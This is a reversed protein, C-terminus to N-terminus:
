RAAKAVGHKELLAELQAREEAGLTEHEAAWRAYAVVLPHGAMNSDLSWRAGQFILGQRLREKDEDTKQSSAFAAVADDFPALALATILQRVPAYRGTALFEGWLLDLQAPSTLERYPDPLSVQALNQAIHERVQEDGVPLTALRADQGLLHLMLTIKTSQDPRTPDFRAVLHDVLWPSAQFLSRFFGLVAFNPSQGDRNQLDAYELWARVAQAPKPARYYEWMWQDCAAHDAPVEGYTWPVLELQAESRATRGSGADHAEAVITTTGPPDKDGFAFEPVARSLVLQGQSPLADDWAPVDSALVQTKRDADVTSLDLTVKGRGGGADGIGELVVLLLVNEGPNVQHVLALAPSSDHAARYWVDLGKDARVISLTAKFEGAAAHTETGTETGAPGCSAVLALLACALVGLAPM